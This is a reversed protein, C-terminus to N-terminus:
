KIVEWFGELIKGNIFNNLLEKNKIKMREIEQTSHLFLQIKHGLKREYKELNVDKKIPTIVLIDIDSEKINEAKGFSGFLVIAQPYNFVEELFEILRSDRLLRINFFLKRERFYKSETNARFFLHNYERKSILLKEKELEKLYKSITTPSKKLLKALQRVYFERGPENIFCGLLKDM